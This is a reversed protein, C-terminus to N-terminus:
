SLHLVADSSPRMLQSPDFERQAFLHPGCIVKDFMTIGNYKQIKKKDLTQYTVEGFSVENLCQTKQLIFNYTISM